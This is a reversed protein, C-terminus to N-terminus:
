PPCTLTSYQVFTARMLLPVGMGARPFFSGKGCFVCASREDGDLVEEVLRNATQSIVGRMPHDLKANPRCPSKFLSVWDEHMVKQGASEAHQAIRYPESRHM